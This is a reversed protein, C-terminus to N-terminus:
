LSVHRLLARKSFESGAVYLTVIGIVMYLLRPPLPAFGLVNSLPAYPLVIASSGVAVSTWFLAPGVRSKFFAHRTRIVLLVFIESLVSEVFWATRFIPPSVHIALLTGFTLFDFLSSVLGFALMFRRINRNDWRRPKEVLEPDLRDTALSMAPLDTLANILLIQKPLLPLFAAFVSAAAMSFMNGFSASTTIFVYKLTNAFAARGERVGAALVRLDKDLLVVDAAQRTVDAASDVSIGVDAAHLASADNIGDGLYGVAVGTKRLALIIREKQNPEIEAFVGVRPAAAVLADETMKRLDGGSLVTSTDFGAQAAIHAAVHRNDGSILKVRIGLTGLEALIQRAHSKLPDALSLIGLFILGREADRDIPGPGIERYAVGLCRFGDRSLAEYRATIAARVQDLPVVQENVYEARDCVDLVSTLAGKTLLLQKDGANVAVSLRKRIFDYPIEDRKTYRAADPLSLARLADDIPNALGTEFAANLYCFLRVRESAAGTWDEAANVAVIGETITGTKDTCLIEMGGLDEISALRRVIVRRQSMRRAGHALTVSVIAPLLQPTLGVSLALTFLLADLVPRHLGVNVSFIVIAFVTTIQLLLYGFHRVGIEFETAAPHKALQQAIEGFMTSAGTRMVLATATGSIVHTGLYLANTRDTLEANAPAVVTSKEAPYSEGTLAAQDVFLDNAELLVGDGPVNSGASLQVIDGPVIEVLTVERPKGDRVVTATTRILSLLKAVANAARHEQWFALAGSALLIALIISGDIVEGVVISLVAAIFLLISIPNGVQDGIQRWVGAHQQPAAVNPGYAVLRRAAEESSLGVRSSHVRDLLRDPPLSWFDAPDPNM